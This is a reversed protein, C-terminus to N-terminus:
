HHGLTSMKSCMVFQKQFVLLWIYKHLLIQIQWKPVFYKIKVVNIFNEKGELTYVCLGKFLFRAEFAIINSVSYFDM